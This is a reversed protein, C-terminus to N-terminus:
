LQSREKLQFIKSVSIEVRRGTAKLDVLFPSPEEEDKARENKTEPHPVQEDPRLIPEMAENLQIIADELGSVYDALIALEKRIKGFVEIAEADRTENM